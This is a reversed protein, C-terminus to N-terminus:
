FSGRVDNQKIIDECWKNIEAESLSDKYVEKFFSQLNKLSEAKHKDPSM